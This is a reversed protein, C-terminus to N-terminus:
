TTTSSLQIEFETINNHSSGGESVAEKALQKWRKANRRIENGREEQMVERISGAIEERTVLGNEDAKTRIGTQWVDAILKATTTQDTWQAMAVTPVGLSLAELTSNWGCHTLFCGVAPHALVLLQSCWNVILGKESVFDRPLKSEEEARVVWLFFCNSEVLGRAIEEMQEEGPTVMSGFSIYVVSSNEKTDLWKMYDEANPKFLSLGYDNDDMHLQPITPGITLIPCKSAMWKLIEDELKDFTNFLRWDAEQFTSFQDVLLGLLTTYPGKDYILSPLDRLRLLPMAPLSIDSGDDETTIKLTGQQIHYFISCVTCPQTFLVAGKLGLQHAIDLTWPLVSDYVIAKAPYSSQKHKEILQPLGQTIAAKFNNIFVQYMDGESTNTADPITEIDILNSTTSAQMQLSLSISVTTVLTVHFGKTVLTKCLQLMPNIHGQLPFPLALIHTKTAM